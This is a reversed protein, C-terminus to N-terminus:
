KLNKLDFIFDENDKKLLKVKGCDKQICEIKNNPCKKYFCFRGVYKDTLSDVIFIEIQHHAIGIKKEDLLKNLAIFRSKRLKELENLNSFWILLDLDKCNHYLLKGKYKGSKVIEKSLPRSISGIIKIKEVNKDKNFEVILYNAAIKIDDYIKLRYKNEDFM